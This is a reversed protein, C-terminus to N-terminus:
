FLILHTVHSFYVTSQFRSLTDSLAHHFSATSVPLHLILPINVHYQFSASTGDDVTQWVLVVDAVQLSLEDPQRATYTRIVEVQTVYPLACDPYTVSANKLDQCVM